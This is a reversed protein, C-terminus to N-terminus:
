RTLSEQLLAVAERIRKTERIVHEKCTYDGTLYIPEGVVVSVIPKTVVAHLFTKVRDSLDSKIVSNAGVQAIPIIPIGLEMALRTAGTKFEGLKGDHPITGEPYIAVLSGGTLASKAMRLADSANSTGRYVPIQGIAKLLHGLIPTEFLESKALARTERGSSYILGGLVIPDFYSLHNPTLLAPSGTPIHELGVISPTSVLSSFGRFATMTLHYFNM